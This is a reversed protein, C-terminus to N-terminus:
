WTAVVEDGKGETWRWVALKKIRGLQRLPEVDAATVTADCNHINIERLSRSDALAALGRGTFRTGELYVYELQPMAALTALSGDGIQTTDPYDGPLTQHKDSQVMLNQLIRLRAVHQMDVDTLDEKWITLDKLSSLKSVEALQVEGRVHAAIVTHFFDKGLRSLLWKPVPSGEVTKRTLGHDCDYVVSGWTNQIHAVIRQQQRARQTHIALWICNLTLAVLVLRLTFRLRWARPRVPNETTM